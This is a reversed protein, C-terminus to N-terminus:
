EDLDKLQKIIKNFEENMTESDLLKIIEKYMQIVSKEARYIYVEADKNKEFAYRILKLGRELLKYSENLLKIKKLLKDEM